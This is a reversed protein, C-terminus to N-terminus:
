LNKIMEIVKPLNNEVEKNKFRIITYGASKLVDERAEDYEKEGRKNHISGDIEIILKKQACYFDAIYHCNGFVLPM